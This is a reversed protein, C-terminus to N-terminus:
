GPGARLAARVGGREEGVFLRAGNRQPDDARCSAAPRLLHQRGLRRRLPHGDPEAGLVQFGDRRRHGRRVAAGHRRARRNRARHAAHRVQALLDSEPRVARLDVAHHLLRVGGRDLAGVRQQVRDLRRHARSLAPAPRRFVDGAGQGGVGPHVFQVLMSEVIRQISQALLDLGKQEVLRSVVGIIPINPNEELEFRRQLDLKCVAKGSLDDATYQAPILPDVAPNWQSYDVGNLVGVYDAGRDNLYPALGYGLEVTRTERAYTPSVTNVMDAFVIGGKLFNVGGYDELKDPTFNNQQLGIYDYHSAPYKGQYAINHITLLSAAKGLVPDDWHWIKLYAAALASQWDHVHVIDPAFGMDRCLQLGARTLFAFRRPNDLFDNYEADHYLGPRAFYKDSEIFFVPMGADDATDVACWELENGMWVGMSNYVRRLGFKDADMSGDRPMVVIVDHGLARLM